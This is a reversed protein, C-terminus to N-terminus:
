RRWRGRRRSQEAVPDIGFLGPVRKLQQDQVRDGVAPDEEDQEAEGARHQRHRQQDQVQDARRQDHQQHARRRQHQEAWPSGCVSPSARSHHRAIIAASPTCTACASISAAVTCTNKAPPALTSPTPVPPPSTVQQEHQAQEPHQQPDREPGLLHDERAAGEVVARSRWSAIHNRTTLAREPAHSHAIRMRSGASTSSSSRSANPDSRAAAPSGRRSRAPRSRLTRPPRSPAAPAPRPPARPVARTPPPRAPAPVGAVPEGTVARARRRVADRGAAAAPRRM